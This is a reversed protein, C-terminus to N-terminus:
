ERGGVPVERQLQLESVAILHHQTPTLHEWTYAVQAPTLSLMRRSELAEVTHAAAQRVRADARNSTVRGLQRRLSQFVM